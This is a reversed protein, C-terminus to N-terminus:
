KGSIAAADARADDLASRLKRIFPAPEIREFIQRGFAVGAAGARIAAQAKAIAEGDDVMLREGAILVPVGLAAPIVTAFSDASGTYITKVVSAGLEVAIRVCHQVLEAFAAQDDRRLDLYNDDSGDPRRTRPYAM